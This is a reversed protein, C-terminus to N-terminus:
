NYYNVNKNYVGVGLGLNALLMESDTGDVIGDNNFDLKSDFLPDGYSNGIYTFMLETDSGDIIGDAYVDGPILSKNGIDTTGVTGSVTIYRTMYGNRSVAVVYTGEIISSISAAKTGADVTTTYLIEPNLYTAKV